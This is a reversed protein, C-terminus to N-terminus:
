RWIQFWHVVRTHLLISDADLRSQDKLLHELTAPFSANLIKSVYRMYIVFNKAAFSLTEM